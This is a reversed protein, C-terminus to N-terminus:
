FDALSQMMEAMTLRKRTPPVEFVQKPLSQATLATSTFRMMWGGRNETFQLPTGALARVELFLAGLPVNLAKTVIVEEPQQGTSSILRTKEAPLQLWQLQQVAKEPYYGPLYVAQPRRAEEKKEDEYSVFLAVNTGEARRADAFEIWTYTGSENRLHVAKQTDRPNFRNVSLVEFRYLNDKQYVTLQTSIYAAPSKELRRVTDAQYALIGERFPAASQARASFGCFNLVLGACIISLPRKM